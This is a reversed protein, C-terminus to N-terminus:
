DKNKQLKWNVGVQYTVNFNHDFGISSYFNHGLKDKLLLSGGIFNVGNTNFNVVPGAYLERNNIYITEKITNTIVPIQIDSDISRSYIRNQTITDNLLIFGLTDLSITDRYFIKTYYDKLIATTDVVLPVTDTVTVITEYYKPVYETHEIHVTDYEIVTETEVRNEIVVKPKNCKSMFVIIGVLILIIISRADIKIM